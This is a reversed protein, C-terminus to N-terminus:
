ENTWESFSDDSMMLSEEPQLLDGELNLDLLKLWEDMGISSEGTAGELVQDALNRKHHHLSLIREEITGQTIFRYLTVPKDQGIRHARNTAQDEVAPNWWPDMHIVYDAETLTLGVGGARLSILFLDAEGRQFREVSRDRQEAPTSGDLREYRIGQEKIWDELIDLHKVFQSFVLAKHGGQQLQIMIRKFHEFKASSGVWDGTILSPHCCALRLKTLVKFVHPLISGKSGQQEKIRERVEGVAISRLAEYQAAEASSLTITINLETKSPLEQLVERKTRRLIFPSVLQKLQAARKIALEGGQEIPQEFITKFRKLDGLLGPNLFRMLSWLDRLHNEIPTGTMAVKFDGQLEIAAKHRLSSSTKIAQAEDLIISNWKIASLSERESGLLGYSCILLDFSQLGKLIRRRATSSSASGIGFRIVKLQPTFRTAEEVWAGCVSTPAIVLTPGRDARSLIVSLAQLTKGLGMDDALCAGGGWYALRSMWAFGEQQYTRLNANLGLPLEVSIKNANQMREVSDLWAQSAKIEAQAAKLENIINASIPTARGEPSSLELAQLKQLFEQTLSLFVGSPLQIYRSPSDILLRNVDKLKAMGYSGLNISGSLSMVGGRVKRIHLQLASEDLTETITWADASPWFSRIKLPHEPLTHIEGFDHEELELLEHIFDIGEEFDLEFYAPSYEELCRAPLDFYDTVVNQYILEQQLDRLLAKLQLDGQQNLIKHLSLERGEGAKLKPGHSGFPELWVRVGLRQGEKRKLPNLTELEILFAPLAPEIRSKSLYSRAEIDTISTVVSLSADLTVALLEAMLRMRDTAWHQTILPRHILEPLLKLATEILNQHKTVEKEAEEKIEKASVQVPLIKLLRTACAESYHEGEESLGDLSLSIDHQGYNLVFHLESQGQRILMKHGPSMTTTEDSNLTGKLAQSMGLRDALHPM